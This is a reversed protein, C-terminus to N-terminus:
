KTDAQGGTRDAPEYDSAPPRERSSFATAKPFNVCCMGTPPSAKCAGRTAREVTLQNIKADVARVTTYGHAEIRLEKSGRTYRLVDGPQYQAAWRRDASSLDSRPSLVVFEQGIGHLAGANRLESRIAQNLEIRSANDPSIVLTNGPHAAYARAITAIRGPREAVEQM